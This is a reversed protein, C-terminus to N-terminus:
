IKLTRKSNSIEVITYMNGIEGIKLDDKLGYFDLCAGCSIIRSGKKSLEELSEIVESRESTLKVGGNLFIIEEPIEKSESLAYVYSKMLTKGLEESGEGLKDTTIMIAFGEKKELTKSTKEKTITLIYDGNELKSEVKFGENESFRTINTNAIENDVIVEAVGEEISEFYKKTSIVPMPCALGRCDIKKM